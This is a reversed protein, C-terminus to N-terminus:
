AATGKLALRPRRRRGAWALQATAIVLGTAAPLYVLAWRAPDARVAGAVTSELGKVLAILLLAAIIQRWIGFRSFGGTMLTSFGLIATVLALAAEAFREHGELVLQGKDRGTEALIAASPFLLDRTALERPRREHTSATPLLPGLDYALEEFATVSLRGTGSSLRQAAGDLMVLQPGAETRVLYARGATYTMTERASRADSILLGLLEGEPTVDRIYLTVGEAPTVFRGEQLLSATATEAIQGQRLALRHAAAPALINTLIMVMATVILGFAIVPRALRMPSAGCARMVTLESDSTLRNTVYLSAAFAAIPLVIRILVPLALLTFELFVLATQGNSILDDFLVVARNIWYILVLVLAFFGFLMMLQSLM